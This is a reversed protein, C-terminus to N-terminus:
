PAQEVCVLTLKPPHKDDVSEVNLRRGNWLVYDKASIQRGIGWGSLVHTALPVLQLAVNMERGTSKVFGFPWDQCVIEPQGERGGDAPNKTPRLISGAESIRQQDAM